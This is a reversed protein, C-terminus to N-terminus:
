EEVQPPKIWHTPSKIETFFEPEHQWWLWFGDESIVGKEQYMCPAYPVIAGYKEVGLIVTGDRPAEDMNSNWTM